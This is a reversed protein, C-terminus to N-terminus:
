DGFIRQWISKQRESRLEQTLRLNDKALLAYSKRLEEMEGRRADVQSELEKISTHLEAIRAELEKIKQGRHTNVSRLGANSRRLASLESQLAVLKGNELNEM